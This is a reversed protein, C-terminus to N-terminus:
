PSSPGGQWLAVLLALGMVWAVSHIPVAKDQIDEFILFPGLHLDTNLLKQSPQDVCGQVSLNWSLHGLSSFLWDSGPELYLAQCGWLGRWGVFWLGLILSLFCGLGKVRVGNNRVKSSRSTAM